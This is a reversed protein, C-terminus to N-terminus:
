LNYRQKIYFEFHSTKYTIPLEVLETIKDVFLKDDKDKVPSYDINGDVSMILLGSDFLKHHNECLWLGNNGDTAYAFKEDFTLENHKMISAIPWIHAGQILQQIKCSCLACKKQGKEKLLNYTYIPSRLNENKKFKKKELTISTNCLKINGLRKIVVQSPYPLSSLGNDSIEYLEIWDIGKLMSFMYCLMSTEYKHAGFTKGYIQVINEENRTVFTPNNTKNRSNKSSMTKANIVDEATSFATVKNGLVEEDNLFNFGITKFVRYAFNLYPTGARGNKCIFYYYLEKNENADLVYKNYLVGVSEVSSNRGSTKPDSNSITIYAVKDDYKLIVLRGENWRGATYYNDGYDNEKFQYIFDSKGTVKICIDKLVDRTLVTEFHGKIKQTNKKIIFVPKSIKEM